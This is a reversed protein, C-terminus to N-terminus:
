RWEHEWDHTFHSHTAVINAEVDVGDAFHLCYSSHFTYIKQCAQDYKWRRQIIHKRTVRCRAQQHNSM